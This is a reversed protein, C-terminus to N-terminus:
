GFFSDEYNKKVHIAVVRAINFDFSKIVKWLLPGSFQNNGQLHDIHNAGSHCQWSGLGPEWAKWCSTDM